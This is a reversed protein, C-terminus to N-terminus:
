FLPPPVSPWLGVPNEELDVVREDQDENAKTLAMKQRSLYFIQRSQLGELVPNQCGQGLLHFFIAGASCLLVLDCQANADTNTDESWLMRRMQIDGLPINGANAGESTSSLRCVDDRSSEPDHHASGAHPDRVPFQSKDVHFFHGCKGM